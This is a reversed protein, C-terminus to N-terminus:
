WVWWPDAGALSTLLSIRPRVIVLKYAAAIKDDIAHASLRPITSPRVDEGSVGIAWAWRCKTRLIWGSRGSWEPSHGLAGGGWCSCSSVVKWGM